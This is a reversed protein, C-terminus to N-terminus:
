PYRLGLKLKKTYVSLILTDGEYSFDSAKIKNYDSLRLGSYAGVLFLDRYEQDEKRTLKLQYLSELEDVGLVVAYVDSTPSQFYKQEYEKTKMLGNSFALGMIMKLSKIYKGVSNPTYEEKFIDQEPCDYENYLFIIFDDYWSENISDFYSSEDKIHDFIKINNMLTHYPKITGEAYKIKKNTLLEGTKMKKITSDLFDVVTIKSKIVKEKKGLKVDLSSKLYEKTIDIEQIRAESIIDPFYGNILDILSSIEDVTASYKKYKSPITSKKIPRRTQRDWLEPPIRLVNNHYLSVLPYVFGIGNRDSRAWVETDKSAKPNKLTYSLELNAM